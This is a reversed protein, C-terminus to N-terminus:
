NASCTTIASIASPSSPWLLPSSASRCTLCRASCAATPERWAGVTAMDGPAQTGAPDAPGSDKRRALIRSALAPCATLAVFTSILVASAMVFGFEGFLRGIDGEMFSIPVFVAVLTLSTAIIAFTVQRAGRVSAVLLSEGMARRRVINELMVIADDVVLGIALLLALLTLINLSFGLALILPLTGILAVPITIAPILTARLSRLFLLIVLVVLGLSLLLAKLVERISAAVFTAEDSGVIIEMGEPLSPRIEEIQARVATSVAVTNALSQRLVGLGVAERGNARVITTNNEVGRDIRAVEGLRIPYGAVRDIVIDNFQEVTSLRSALRVTLLRDISEIEGAPLEVNSRRLAQEIDAITLKRAALERRDLWIRIAYRRSGFVEVNAVGDLTSFRDTLYREIYDTIEPASMRDSTIAIRMVPDADADSKVIRPEDVDNPLRGRVRGVADRVDNTAEDINRSSVFEVTTRSRGTRSESTITKVGSIGAVAGDIIETIDGDIIEPAAGAYTTTITVVPRDVNPLERVSISMLSSIGFVVILLCVVSALVPRRISLESLTM